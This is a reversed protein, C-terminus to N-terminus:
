QGEMRAIVDARASQVEALGPELQLARDYDAIADTYRGLDM